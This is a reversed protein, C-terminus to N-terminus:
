DKVIRSTWATTREGPKVRRVDGRKIAGGINRQASREINSSKGALAGLGAGTVAGVGAGAVKYKHPLDLGSLAGTAAGLGAGVGTGAAIHQANGHGAKMRSDQRIEKQTRKRGEKSHWGYEGFKVNAKSIEGHDVGFASIM